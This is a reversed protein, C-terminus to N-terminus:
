EASGRVVPGNENYAYCSNVLAAPVKYRAAPGGPKSRSRVSHMTQYAVTGVQQLLERLHTCGEVGGLAAMATKLFGKAVSVGVLRQYNPVVGPCINHPTSDMAAEVAVILMAPDITLRLWMDHLKDGAPILGRDQNHWSYTKTDTMHAEIDLLGDEREYGRLVIDREHLLKRSAARPLPM